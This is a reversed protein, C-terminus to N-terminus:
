PKPERYVDRSSGVLPRQGPELHWPLVELCNDCQKQNLSAYLRLRTGGCRPCAKTTEQRTQKGHASM